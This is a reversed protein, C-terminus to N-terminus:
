ILGSRELLAHTDPEKGRYRKYLTMPEESGGRSLINDRFSAATNKDFIGNQLFLSFADADLVEAWKYGYYGAAYGGGFIHSFGTSFCCGPVPPFLSAKKMAEVEYRQVSTHLEAGTTHWAMDNLAFALQRTFAYGSNFTKAKLINDMLESPMSEGSEYHLALMTLWKKQGAWNEMIQSPLEVFDRYVNTGSLSMYTCKSLISHLAHGFEHLFTEVEEYTLLSPTTKTAKTFNFVLSVQPRIDEGDIFHQELYDTMWAGGQKGKRPFYDMYLLALYNGKEDDVRFTKVDPHYVAIDKEEHFSIGYLTGALEFIKEQVRELRFFPKSMEETLSFKQKKLKESYYPWDWPKLRYDIGENKAFEQLEALEMKAHPLSYELLDDIFKNVRDVSKAMREELIYAAYNDYGLLCSIKMRLNVIKIIIESNDNEDGHFCRSLYARYIEERKERLTSYKIFSSYSPAKLTFVWGEKNIANAEEAAADIVFQPLGSLESKNTLHLIYKNTDLLLNEKFKLELISLERTYSRFEEQRSNDLAAGNRVFMKYSKELLMKEDDNIDLADKQSYVAFVKEYLKKNLSIDNYFDTLIPSIEMAKAQLETNTEAANLNFLLQTIRTLEYTSRELREITNRFDPQDSSEVIKDINKRAEKIADQVAPMFDAPTTSNFAVPNFKNKSNNM